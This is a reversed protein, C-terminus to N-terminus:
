LVVETRRLSEKVLIKGKKRDDYRFLRKEKELISQFADYIM